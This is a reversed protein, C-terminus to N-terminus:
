ALQMQRIARLRRQIGLTLPQHMQLHSVSQLFAMRLGQRCVFIEHTIRDAPDLQRSGAISTICRGWRGNSTSAEAM